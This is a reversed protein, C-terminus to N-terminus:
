HIRVAFNAYRYKVRRAIVWVVVLACGFSPRGDLAYLLDQDADHRHKSLWVIFTRRINFGRLHPSFTPWFKIASYPVANSPAQAQSFTALPWQLPYDCCWVSM